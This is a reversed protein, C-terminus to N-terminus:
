NRKEMKPSPNTTLGRIETEFAEMLDNRQRRTYKSADIPQGIHIDVSKGRSVQLSKAAMVEGSGIIALPIITAGSDIALRFGGPKLEQLQGTKSRTGEPAIWLVIGKEMMMRAYKMDKLAQRPNFRDISVFGTLKMARGWIPLQLLEKKAMMRISGKLALLSLPIDYHSCHNCMIIYAKAPEIEFRHPNFVTVKLDIFRILSRAWLRLRGDLSEQSVPHFYSEIITWASIILTIGIAHLVTLPNKLFDKFM